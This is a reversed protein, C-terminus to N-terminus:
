EQLLERWGRGQGKSAGEESAEGFAELLSTHRRDRGGRGCEGKDRQQRKGQWEGRKEAWDGGQGEVSRGRGDGDKRQDM